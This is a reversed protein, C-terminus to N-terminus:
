RECVWAWGNYNPVWAWGHGIIDCGHGRGSKLGSHIASDNCQSENCRGHPRVSYTNRVKSGEDEFVEHIKCEFVTTVFRLGRLKFRLGWVSSSRDLCVRLRYPSYFCRRRARCLFYVKLLFYGSICINWSDLAMGPVFRWFIESTWRWAQFSGCIYRWSWGHLSM